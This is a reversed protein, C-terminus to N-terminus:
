MDRLSRGLGGRDKFCDCVGGGERVLLREREKLFAEQECEFKAIRGDRESLEKSFALREEEMAEEAREKAEQLARHVGGADLMVGQSSGMSVGHCGSGGGGGATGTPPSTATSFSGAINSLSDASVLQGPLTTTTKKASLTSTPTPKPPFTDKEYSEPSDERSDVRCIGAIGDLMDEEEACDRVSRSPLPPPGPHVEKKRHYYDSEWLCEGTALSVYYKGGTTPDINMTWDDNTANGAGAKVPSSIHGRPLPGGAGKAMSFSMGSMSSTMLMKKQLFAATENMGAERAYDVATYNYYDCTGVVAGYSLLMKCFDLDGTGAAYHLPTCGYTTECIEPNAGNQLLSKAISKSMSEKYCAFHLCSAGSSNLSNPDAGKNLMIRVLAECSYQCAALLLTNGYPDRRDIDEVPLDSLTSRVISDTSADGQGYFPIFQFLIEIADDTDVDADVKKSGKKSSERKLPFMDKDDSDEEPDCSPLKSEEINKITPQPPSPVSQVQANGMVRVHKIDFRYCICYPLHGYVWGGGICSQVLTM